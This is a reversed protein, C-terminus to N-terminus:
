AKELGYNLRRRNTYSYWTLVLTILTIGIVLHFTNAKGEDIFSGLIINTVLYPIKSIFELTSLTTARWKPSIHANLVISIWPKNIYGSLEILILSSIGIVGLKLSGVLFGIGLILNLIALGKRDGFYRRLRPLFSIGILNFVSLCTYIVAQGEVEFGANLAISPKSFGWDYLFFAALTSIMPLLFPRLDEKFLEKFGVLNQSLLNEQNPFSQHDSKNEKLFLTIIFAIFTGTAYLLHPLRFYVSYLFGGMLVTVAFMTTTIQQDFTTLKEFQADRSKAPLSDYTIAELAGSVFARGISGLVSGLLFLWFGNTLAMAFWGLSMIFSGLVVSLKRGYKDAFIGTPIESIIGVLVSIAFIIGIEFYSVFRSFFFYWVAEIFWLNQFVNIALYLRSNLNKPLQKFM